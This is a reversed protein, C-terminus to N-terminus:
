DEVKEDYEKKATYFLERFQSKAIALDTHDNNNDKRNKFKNLIFNVRSIAQKVADDNKMIEKAISVEPSKQEEDTLDIGMLYKLAIGSTGKFLLTDFRKMVSDSNFKQNVPQARKWADNKQKKSMTLNLFARKNRSLDPTTRSDKEM